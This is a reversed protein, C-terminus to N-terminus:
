QGDLEAFTERAVRFGDNFGSVGCNVERRVLRVDPFERAVMDASGDESANDVVVVDVLAPDYDSEGTMRLLSSRLEERRNFVLFVVTVSPAM